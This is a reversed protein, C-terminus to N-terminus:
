EDFCRQWLVRLAENGLRNLTDINKTPVSDIDPHGAVAREVSAERLLHLMPYPSRNSYNEAADPHTGAFQYQPHFSAIQYIGRLQMQLLRADCRGLFDNFDYFDDLVQPHVIFATEIEPHQELRQLEHELSSLLQEEDKADSRTFAVSGKDLERKAFPCLNFQVVVSDIWLRSATM